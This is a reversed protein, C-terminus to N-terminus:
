HFIFTTTLRYKPKKSERNPLDYVNSDTIETQPNMESLPVFPNSAPTPLKRMQPANMKPVINRCFPSENHLDHSFSCAASHVKHFLKVM